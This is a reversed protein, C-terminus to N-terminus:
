DAAVFGTRLTPCGRKKATASHAGARHVVVELRARGDRGTRVRRGGVRVSAGRSCAAGAGVVRASFRIARGVRVRQPVLVLRASPAAAARECAVSATLTEEAGDKFGFTGSSTWERSAPCTGPTTVFGTAAAITFDIQRVATEGDPPGGPTVPPAGSLTSGEIRLRDTGLVRDTGPATVVELVADGTNFLALDGDIPDAPPGFGSDAKLKGAGIRSEAPCAGSGQAQLEEDSAKCGPVAGTDFRTGAPAAIVVKRIPSPKADPDGAAKYVVHLVLAARTGPKPTSFGLAFDARSGTTAGAIGCTTAALGTAAALGMCAAATATQLKSMVM